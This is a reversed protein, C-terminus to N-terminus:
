SCVWGGLGVHVQQRNRTMVVRGKLCGVYIQGTKEVDRRRSSSLPQKPGQTQFYSDHVVQAREELHGCGVRGGNSKTGAGSPVGVHEDGGVVDDAVSCSLDLLHSSIVSGRHMGMTCTLNRGKWAHRWRATPRVLWPACFNLMNFSRRIWLSLWSTTLKPLHFTIGTEALPSSTIRDLRSLEVIAHFRRARALGHRHRSCWGTM